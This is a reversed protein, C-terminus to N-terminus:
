PPCARWATSCPPSRWPRLVAPIRHPRKARTFEGLREVPVFLVHVYLFLLAALAQNQTSASVHQDNALHSLFAEIETAGMERPHRMGHFVVFRRIWTRYAEATRPSDHRARITERVRDLLRPRREAPPTTDHAM